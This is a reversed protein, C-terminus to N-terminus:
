ASPTERRALEAADLRDRMLRTSAFIARLGERQEVSLPPAEAVLRRIEAVVDPGLRRGAEARNFEMASNM